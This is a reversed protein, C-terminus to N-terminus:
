LKEMITSRVVIEDQAFASELTERYQKWWARDIEDAMVEFVVIEDRTLHGDERSEGIAPARNFVTVGGFRETLEHRLQRYLKQPFAQGKNDHLPLLIEILYM